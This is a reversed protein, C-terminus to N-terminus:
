QIMDSFREGDQLLQLAPDKPIMGKLADPNHM